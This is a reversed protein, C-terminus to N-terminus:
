QNKLTSGLWADCGVQWYHYDMPQMEAHYISETLEQYSGAQSLAYEIELLQVIRYPQRNMPNLEM